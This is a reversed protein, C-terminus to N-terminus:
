PWPTFFFVFSAKSNIFFAAALTFHLLYKVTFTRYWTSIIVFESKYLIGTVMIRHSYQNRRGTDEGHITFAKNGWIPLSSWEFDALLEISSFSNERSLMKQFKIITLHCVSHITSGPTRKQRM